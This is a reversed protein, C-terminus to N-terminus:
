GPPTERHGRKSARVIFWVAGIVIGAALTVIILMSNRRGPTKEGSDGVPREAAPTPPKPFVSDDIKDLFEISTLTFTSSSTQDLVKFRMPYHIGQIDRYDDYVTESSAEQGSPTGKARELLGTSKDFFYDWLRQSYLTRFGVLTRGNTTEDPLSTLPVAKERLLLLVALFGYWQQEETSLPEPWFSHQVPKPEERMWSEKGIFLYEIHFPMENSESDVIRKNRVPLDFWEEIRYAFPTNAQIGECKGKFHGRKTREIRAAGGHAGIARDLVARADEASATGALFLLLLICPSTLLDYRM